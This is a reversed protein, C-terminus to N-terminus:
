TPDIATKAPMQPSRSTNTKVDSAGEAEAEQKQEELDSIVEAVIGDHHCIPYRGKLALIIIDHGELIKAM